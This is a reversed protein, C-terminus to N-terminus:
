ISYQPVYPNQNAQDQTRWDMTVSKGFYCKEPMQTQTEINAGCDESIIVKGKCEKKWLM